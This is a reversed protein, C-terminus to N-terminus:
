KALAPAKRNLFIRIGAEVSSYKFDKIGQQLRLLVAAHNFKKEAHARVVVPKDGSNLLYGLYGAVSSQVKWKNKNWELGTGFLFADNQRHGDGTLQWVYIGAMGIWKLHTSLPRGFSLDAYYGMNDTFRAAELKNSSPLRFGFRVALQISKEWKKMFRVTGNLYVDGKALKSDYHTYYVHREKKVADSMRYHEVPIYAVDITVVDKVIPYNGYFAINQTKDGKSFHFHGTGAIWTNSDVSGNGIFPVPLANPGMYAASSKIYKSWHSVGDWNVTQAWEQLTQASLTFSSTTGISLLLGIRIARNM